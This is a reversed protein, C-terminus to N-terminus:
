RFVAEQVISAVFGIFDQCLMISMFILFGIIGMGVVSFLATGVSKSFGFEHVTMMASLLMFVFYLTCVTSLVSIFSVSSPSVFYSLVMFLASYLILPYLSYCTCIYIKKIRGKGEFLVCVGWNVVVWLLVVGVTGLLTYIVNYTDREPIVYMFGAYIQRCTSGIFFLLLFVTAIIVSGENKEQVARFSDVPHLLASLAVNLRRNKIIVLKKKSSIILFATLGGAVALICLFLIGFHNKLSATLVKSHANVYTERDLGKESYLMAKEYDGDALSAKAIGIIALQNNKDLKNVQEWYPLAESYRGENSLADGKKILAGYETESFVTIRNKDSDAILVDGNEAVAISSPKKFVGNQEGTGFGGSFVGLLNCSFDYVFVRGSSTNLAYFFNDDAAIAGFNNGILVNAESTVGANDGFNFSDGETTKYNFRSSLINSGGPSLRRIQGATIDTNSTTTLIMGENDLCCDLFTYPIKQIDNMRKTETSFLNKFFGTVASLVSTKVTNAGFFGIFNFDSDFKMAGYYCGDSLVYIFGQEDQLIRKPLFIVDEPILESEPKQVTRLIKGGADAVVIRNNQTDAIYIKGSETVFLGEAGKLEAANGSSDRLGSIISKVRYENDLIYIKNNQSDLAYLLGDRGFCFYTVSFSGSIGLRDADINESFDYIAKIPVAKKNKYGQWYTYTKYPVADYNETDAAAVTLVTFFAALAVCLLRKLIKLNGSLREEGAKRM